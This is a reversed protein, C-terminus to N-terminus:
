NLAWDLILNVQPINFHFIHSKLHAFIQKQFYIVMTARPKRVHTPRCVYALAHTRLCVGTYWTLIEFIYFICTKQLLPQSKSHIECRRPTTEFGMKEMTYLKVHYMKLVCLFGVPFVQSESSFLSDFPLKECFVRLDIKNSQSM